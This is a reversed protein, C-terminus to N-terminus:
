RPILLLVYMTYTANSNFFHASVDDFLVPKTIHINYRRKPPNKLESQFYCSTFISLKNKWMFLKLGVKQMNLARDSM